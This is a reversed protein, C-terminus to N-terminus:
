CILSHRVNNDTLTNLTLIVAIHLCNSFLVKDAYYNWGEITYIINKPHFDILCVASTEATVTVSIPSLIGLETADSPVLDHIFIAFYRLVIHRCILGAHRTTLQRACRCILNYSCQSTAKRTSTCKDSTM